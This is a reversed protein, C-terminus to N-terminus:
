RSSMVGSADVNVDNDDTPLGTMGVRRVSAALVCVLPEIAFLGDARKPPGKRFLSPTATSPQGKSKGMTGSALALNMTKRWPLPPPRPSQVSLPGGQQTIANAGIARVTVNTTLPWLPSKRSSSLQPSPHSSGGAEHPAVTLLAPFLKLDWFL